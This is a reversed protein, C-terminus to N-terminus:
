GFVSSLLKLFCMSIEFSHFIGTRRRFTRVANKEKAPFRKSCVSYYNFIFLGAMQNNKLQVSHTPRDSTEISVPPFDSCSLAVTTALPWGPCGAPFHWLFYVASIGKRFCAITFLHPLLAGRRRRRRRCPLGWRRCSWTLRSLKARLQANDSLGAPLDSSGVPLPQGLYIIAAGTAGSKRLLVAPPVSSPKCVWEKKIFMDGWALKPALCNPENERRWLNRFKVYKSTM